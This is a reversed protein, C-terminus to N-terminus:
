KLWKYAFDVAEKNIIPNIKKMMMKKWKIIMPMYVFLFLLLFYCYM